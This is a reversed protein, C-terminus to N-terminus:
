IHVKSHSYDFLTRLHEWAVRRVYRCEIHLKSYHYRTISKSIM